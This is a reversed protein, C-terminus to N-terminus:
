LELDMGIESEREGLRFWGDECRCWRFESDMWMLAGTAQWTDGPRPPWIGFVGMIFFPLLDVPPWGLDKCREVRWWNLKPSKDLVAQRPRRGNFLRGMDLELPTWPAPKVASM